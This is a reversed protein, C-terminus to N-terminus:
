RFTSWLYLNSSNTVNTSVSGGTSNITYTGSNGSVTINTGAVINAVYDTGAVAITPAGTSNTNKLLGTSLGALSVGNIKTVTTTLVGTSGSATVDGGISITQDGTNTGSSTGSFTGSQTALTGLGLSTRQASTDASTLLARGAITSDSIQSATHTHGSLSVGTGNVQLSQTFNGSTAAIPGTLTGGSLLLFSGTGVIGLSNYATVGDGIKLKLTDTEFIPEGSAVVPNTASLAAALGKKIQINPM